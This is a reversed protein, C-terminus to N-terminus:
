YYKESKHLEIFQSETSRRNTYYFAKAKQTSLHRINERSRDYEGKELNRIFDQQLKVEDYNSEIFCYDYRKKPANKMSCTDTAYIINCGKRNKWVYGYTVANHVCDFAIFKYDDICYPKETSIINIKINEGKVKQYMEYNSIIIINPFLNILQKLTAVNLHDHHIHTILLYKIDYLYEYIKKFSVGIDIMVNDIIVCNGHKSGSSVVTYDLKKM